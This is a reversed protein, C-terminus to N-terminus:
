EHNLWRWAELWYDRNEKQEPYEDLYVRCAEQYLNLYGPYQKSFRKLVYTYDCM